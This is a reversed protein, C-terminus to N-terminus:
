ASETKRSLCYRTMTIPECRVWELRMENADTYTSQFISMRPLCVGAHSVKDDVFSSLLFVTLSTATPPVREDGGGKGISDFVCFVMFRPREVEDAESEPIQLLEVRGEGLTCKSHGLSKAEATCDVHFVMDAGVEKRSRALPPNCSAPFVKIQGEFESDQSSEKVVM